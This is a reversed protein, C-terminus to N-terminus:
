KVFAHNRWTLFAPRPIEIRTAPSEVLATKREVFGTKAACKGRLFPKGGTREPAIM